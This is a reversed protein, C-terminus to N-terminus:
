MDLILLVLVFTREKRRRERRGDRKIEEKKREEMRKRGWAAPDKKIKSM